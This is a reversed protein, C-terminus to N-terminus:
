SEKTWLKGTALYWLRELREQAKVDDNIDDPMTGLITGLKRYPSRSTDSMMRTYLISFRTLWIPNELKCEQWEASIEEDPWDFYPDAPMMYHRFLDVYVEDIEITALSATYKVSKDNNNDSM